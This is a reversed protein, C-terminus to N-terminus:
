GVFLLCWCVFLLCCVAFVLWCLVVCLLCCVVCLLWCVVVLLVCRVVFVLLLVFCVVCLVCVACCVLCWVVFLVCCVVFLVCCVVCLVCWVVFVCVFLCFAGFRLPYKLLLLKGTTMNTILFVSTGTFYYTTYSTLDCLFTGFVWENSILSVFHPLAYTVAVMLDCVAIHQIIVVIVDHLKFASFKLSAILITTDGVLSSVLVFLLYVAWAHRADSKIGFITTNSYQYNSSTTM